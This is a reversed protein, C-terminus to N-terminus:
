ALRGIHEAVENPSRLVLNSTQPKNGDASFGARGDPAAWGVLLHRIPRVVPQRM